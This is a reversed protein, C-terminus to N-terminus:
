PRLGIMMPMTRNRTPEARDLLGFIPRSMAKRPM